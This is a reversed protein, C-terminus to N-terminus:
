KEHIWKKSTALMEEKSLFEGREFEAEAEHLETNNFARVGLVGYFINSLKEFSTGIKDSVSGSVSLLRSEPYREFM